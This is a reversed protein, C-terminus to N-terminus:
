LTGNLLFQNFMHCDQQRVQDLREPHWMIGLWSNEESLIAKTIKKNDSNLKYGLAKFNGPLATETFNHYSNVCIVENNFVIEQSASVQGACETLVAGFYQMMAQMGRCVGILPANTQQSWKMLVREVESRSDDTKDCYSGGGTLIACQAMNQALMHTVTTECNPLLIPLLGSSTLFHQWRVDLTDHHEDHRMLHQQQTVFVPTM